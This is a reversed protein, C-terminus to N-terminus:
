HVFAFKLVNNEVLCIVLRIRVDRSDSSGPNRSAYTFDVAIPFRAAHEHTRITSSDRPSAPSSAVSVTM